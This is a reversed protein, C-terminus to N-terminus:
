DKGLAVPLKGILMKNKKVQYPDQGVLFRSPLLMVYFVYCLLMIGALVLLIILTSM